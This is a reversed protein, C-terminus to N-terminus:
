AIRIVLKGRTHKTEQQAHAEGIQELPYVQHIVPELQGAEVWGRIQDLDNRRAAVVVLQAKRGTSNKTEEVSKFVHPQLVTSVWVGRPKLIPLVSDFPRNGFVDFFIDFRRGSQTIDESQYDVCHDAGLGRLFDHNGPSAIATVDAGLIKVIRVGATGVGGAAGNICVAHGPKIGAQDRLAQLATSCVLPLAAAEEFSLGAPMAALQHPKVALYEACAQGEWGDLMGYVATDLSAGETEPGVAAIEGAFDFGTQMPFQEGTFAKLYGKRIFTDKPNVAAARVRVLVEDPQPEPRPLDVIVMQDAAGFAKFVAAKM